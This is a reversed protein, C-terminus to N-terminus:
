AELHPASAEEGGGEKSVIALMYTCLNRMSILSHIEFLYHGNSYAPLLILAAIVYHYM